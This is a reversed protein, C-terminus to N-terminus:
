LLIYKDYIALSDGEELCPIVFTSSVEAKDTKARIAFVKLSEPVKTFDKCTLATVELMCLAGYYAVTAILKKVLFSNDLFEARIYGLIADPTLM